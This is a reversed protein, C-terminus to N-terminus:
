RLITWSQREVTSSQLWTNWTFRVASHPRPFAVISVVITRVIGFKTPSIM